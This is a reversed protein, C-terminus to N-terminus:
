TKIGPLILQIINILEINFVCKQNVKVKRVNFKNFYELTKKDLLERM